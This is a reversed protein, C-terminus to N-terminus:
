FWWPIFRPVKKAYELYEPRKLYREEIPPVGTVKLILFNIAMPGLITWFNKPEFALFYVGYWLFVEGFYNPFRCLKWPGTTCIKGKNEPQKKFWSLYYDSFVELSFGSIWIMLGLWNIWSMEARGMGMTIPLSVIFMLLGQFIFVKFYANLNSYPAWDQRFKTYRPDEPKGRGRTYIYLSLRLGWTCATLLLLANKLSVPSHLYTILSIIIFGSGWAIDMLAYNKKILAMIFFLHIFIGVALFLQTWM